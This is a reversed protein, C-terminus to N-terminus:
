RKTVVALSNGLGFRVTGAPLVRCRVVTFHEAVSRAMKSCDFGVHSYIYNCGSLSGRPGQEVHLGLVTRAARGLSAYKDNRTLLRYSNKALSAFGHEIPFTFLCLGDEQLANRINLFLTELEEPPLHEVTELCAIRDFRGTISAFDRTLTVRECAALKRQAQVFLEEAPDYAVVDVKPLHRSVQLSLEGDGCGYDLFRQGERLDLLRFSAAFRQQHLWRKLPNKSDITHRAYDAM